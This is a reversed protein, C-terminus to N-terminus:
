YPLLIGKGKVAPRATEINLLPFLMETKEAADAERIGCLRHNWSITVAAYFTRISRQAADMTM